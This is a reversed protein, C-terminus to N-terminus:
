DRAATSATPSGSSQLRTLVSRADTMGEFPKGDSLAKELNDRAAVTQGAKLEALALHYRLVAASPALNVAQGLTSLARTLDGHKYQVWGLTDV